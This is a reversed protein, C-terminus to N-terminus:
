IEPLLFVFALIERQQAFAFLYGRIRKGFRPASGVCQSGLGICNATLVSCMPRDVTFFHPNRVRGERVDEDRKRLNITALEATKDYFSTVGAYGGACFFVFHAQFAGRRASED